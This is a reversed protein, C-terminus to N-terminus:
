RMSFSMAAEAEAAEEKKDEVVDTNAATTEVPAVVPAKNADAVPATAEATKNADLTATMKATSSPTAADTTAAKETAVVDAAKAAPAKDEKFFSAVFTGVYYLATGIVATALAVLTPILSPPFVVNFTAIAMAGLGALSLKLWNDQMKKWTNKMMELM